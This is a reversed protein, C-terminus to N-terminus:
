IIATNHIVRFQQYTRDMQVGILKKLILSLALLETGQQVQLFTANGKRQNSIFKSFKLDKHQFKGHWRQGNFLIHPTHSRLHDNWHNIKKPKESFLAVPFHSVFTYSCDYWTLGPTQRAWLGWESLPWDQLCIQCKRGINEWGGVIQPKPIKSGSM